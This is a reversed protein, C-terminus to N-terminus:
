AVFNQMEDKVRKEHWETMTLDDSDQSVPDDTWGDEVLVWGGVGAEHYKKLDLWVWDCTQGEEDWRVLARTMRTARKGTGRIINMEVDEITGYYTYNEDNKKLQGDAKFRRCKIVMEIDKGELAATMEPLALNALNAVDATVKGTAVWRAARAKMAEIRKLMPNNEQSANLTVPMKKLSIVPLPPDKPKGGLSKYKQLAHLLHELLHKEKDAFAAGCCGCHDSDSKRKREQWRLEDYGYGLVMISLQEKMYAVRENKFKMKKLEKKITAATHLEVGHWVLAQAYQKAAKDCVADAARNARRAAAADHMSQMLKDYQAVDRRFSPMNRMLCYREKESLKDWVSWPDSLRANVRAAKAGHSGTHLAVSVQATTGFTSEARMTNQYCWDMIEKFGQTRCSLQLEGNLQKDAMKRLERAFEGCMARAHQQQLDAADEGVLLESAPLRRKEDMWEWLSEHVKGGAANFAPQKYANEYFGNLRSMVGDGMHALGNIDRGPGALTAMINDDEMLEEVYEIFFKV